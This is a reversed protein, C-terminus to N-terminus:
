TLENRGILIGEVLVGVLYGDLWPYCYRVHGHLTIDDVELRVSARQQLSRDTILQLGGESINEIRTAVTSVPGDLVTLHAQIHTPFRPAHRRELYHEDAPYISTKFWNRLRAAPVFRRMRVSLIALCWSSTGINSPRPSPYETHM